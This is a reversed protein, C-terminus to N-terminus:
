IGVVGYRLAGISLAANKSRERCSTELAVRRWVEHWQDNSASCMLGDSSATRGPRDIEKPYNVLLPVTCYIYGEVCIQQCLLYMMEHVKKADNQTEASPRDGNVCTSHTHVNHTSRDRSMRCRASEKTM